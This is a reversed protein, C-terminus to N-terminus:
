KALTMEQIFLTSSLKNYWIPLTYRNGEVIKNVGHPYDMGYFFVTRGVRPTIEFENEIFTKGGVYDDNLYSISTFVTNPDADDVHCNQYNGESWFVVEGWGYEIEEDCYKKSENFLRNVINKVWVKNEVSEELNLIRNGKEIKSPETEKHLTILEECESNTLFDDVIIIKSM